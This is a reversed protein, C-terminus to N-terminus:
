RKSQKSLKKYIKLYQDAILKPTFRKSNALGKKVLEERYTKNNIVKLIGKKIDAASMPNVLCASGNAVDDMPAINSTIIPRGIANAEIIPMGFGEYMSVFSVVDCKRYKEIIEKDSLNIYNTYKIKHEKLLNSQEDSIQGIITLHCKLGELARFLNPLNKNATTGIQLINPEKYNFKNKHFKFGEPLPNPIVIIKKPDFEIESQIEKKSFQSITTIYAVRRGPIQYWFFRIIAKSIKSMKAQRFGCDHITLITKSKRMLYSLFHVDGTIHNIDGQHFAAEIINFLRAYLGKSIYKPVFVEQEFDKPLYKKVENFVREISFNGRDPRRDFFTVKM